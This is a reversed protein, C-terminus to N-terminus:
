RDNLSQESQNFYSVVGFDGDISLIHEVESDFLQPFVIRAERLGREHELIGESCVNVREVL